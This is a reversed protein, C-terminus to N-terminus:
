RMLRNTCAPRYRELLDSPQALSIFLRGRVFLFHLTVTFYGNIPNQLNSKRHSSLKFLTVSFIHILNTCNCCINAFYEVEVFNEKCVIGVVGTSITALLLSSFPTLSTGQSSVHITITCTGEKQRKIKYHVHLFHAQLISTSKSKLM